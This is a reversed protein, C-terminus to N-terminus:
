CWMWRAHQYEVIDWDQMHKPKGGGKHYGGVWGGWWLPLRVGWGGRLWRLPGCPAAPPPPAGVPRGARPRDSAVRYANTASRCPTTVSPMTESRGEGM